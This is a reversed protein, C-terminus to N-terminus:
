KKPKFIKEAVRPDAPVLRVGKKETASMKNVLVAPIGKSIVQKPTPASKIELDIGYLKGLEYVKEVPATWKTRSESEAWEWGPVPRGKQVEILARDELAERFEKLLKIGEDLMTLHLGIAKNSLKTMQLGRVSEIIRYSAQLLAPCTERGLCNDCHPGTTFTPSASLAEYAMKKLHHFYPELEALTLDFYRVPGQRHYPRPQVVCLRINQPLPQGSKHLENLLGITYDILQWSNAEVIGWGCKLDKIILTGGVPDLFIVAGDLTGWNEPHVNPMFVKHEVVVRAGPYQKATEVVDFIYVEALELMEATYVLGNPAKKGLYDQRKYSLEGKGMAIWIELVVKVLDHIAQGEITTPHPPKDEHLAEHQVSASCEAWRPASSPALVAHDSM